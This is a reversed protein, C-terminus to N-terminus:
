DFWITTHIRLHSRDTRQRRNEFWWQSIAKSKTGDHKMTHFTAIFHNHVHSDNSTHIMMIAMQNSENTCADILNDWCKRQQKTKNAEVNKERGLKKIRNIYSWVCQVLLWAFRSFRWEFISVSASVSLFASSVCSGRTSIEFIDNRTIIGDSKWFICVCCRENACIFASTTSMIVIMSIPKRIAIAKITHFHWFCRGNETHSLCQFICQSAWRSVTCLDNMQICVSVCVSFRIRM